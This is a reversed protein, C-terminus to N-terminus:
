EAVGREEECLKHIERSADIRDRLDKGPKFHPSFKESTTMKEGTKPNHADRALRHKISFSGFGRIEIRQNESLADSMLQILHNVSNNITRVPIHSIKEALRAILESKLM